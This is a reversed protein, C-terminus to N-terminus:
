DNKERELQALSQHRATLDDFDIHQTITHVQNGCIPCTDGVNIASQLTSILDQKNNLDISTKDIKKYANTIQQLEDSLKKSDNANQQKREQLQQY